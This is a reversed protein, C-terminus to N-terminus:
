LVMSWDIFSSPMLLLPLNLTCTLHVGLTLYVSDLNQLKKQRTGRPGGFIFFREFFPGLTRM